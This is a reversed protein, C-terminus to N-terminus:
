ILLRFLCLGYSGINGARGEEGEWEAPLFFFTHAPSARSFFGFFVVGLFGCSFAQAFGRVVKFLFCAVKPVSGFCGWCVCVCVCGGSCAFLVIVFSSSSLLCSLCAFSFYRLINFYIFFNCFGIGERGRERGRERERERERERGEGEGIFFAVVGVVWCAVGTESFLQLM